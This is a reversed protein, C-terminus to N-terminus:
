TVPRSAKASFEGKQLSGHLLSVSGKVRPVWDGPDDSVPFDEEKTRKSGKLSSRVAATILTCLFLRAECVRQLYVGRGASKDVGGHDERVPSKRRNSKM